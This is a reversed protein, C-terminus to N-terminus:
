ARGNGSRGRAPGGIPLVACPGRSRCAPRTGGARARGSPVSRNRLRGSIRPHAYASQSVVCPGCGQGEARLAPLVKRRTGPLEFDPAEDGVQLEAAGLSGGIFMVGLAWCAIRKMSLVGIGIISAGIVRLVLRFKAIRKMSLVGMGITVVWLPLRSGALPCPLRRRLEQQNLLEPVYARRWAGLGGADAVGPRGELDM